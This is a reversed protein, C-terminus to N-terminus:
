SAFIKIQSIRHWLNTLALLWPRGHAGGPKPFFTIEFTPCGDADVGVPFFEGFMEGWCHIRRTPKGTEGDVLTLLSEQKQRDNGGTGGEVKTGTGDVDRVDVYWHAYDILSLQYNYIRVVGENLDFDSSGAGALQAHGGRGHNGVARRARRAELLRKAYEGSRGGITCYCVVNLPPRPDHTTPVKNCGRGYQEEFEEISLSGAFQSVQREQRSRCDVLVTRDPQHRIGSEAQVDPDEGGSGDIVRGESAQLLRVVGATDLSPVGPFQPACHRDYFTRAADQNEHLGGSRDALKKKQSTM